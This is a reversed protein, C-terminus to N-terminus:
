PFVVRAHVQKQFSNNRMGSIDASKHSVINYRKWDKPRKTMIYTRLATFLSIEHINDELLTLIESTRRLSTGSNEQYWSKWVLRSKITKRLVHQWLTHIFTSCPITINWTCYAWPTDINYFDQNWQETSIRENVHNSMKYNEKPFATM